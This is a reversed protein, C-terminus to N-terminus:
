GPQSFGLKFDLGREAEPLSDGYREMFLAAFESLTSSIFKPYEYESNWKQIGFFQDKPVISNDMFAANLLVM